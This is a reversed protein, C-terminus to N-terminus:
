LSPDGIGTYGTLAKKSAEGRADFEIMVKSLAKEDFRIAPLPAAGEQGKVEGKVVANYLYVGGIALCVIVITTVLLIVLWDVYANRGIEKFPNIIKM